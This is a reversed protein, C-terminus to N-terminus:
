AGYRAVVGALILATLMSHEMMSDAFIEEHDGVEVGTRRVLNVGNKNNDVCYPVSASRMRVRIVLPM